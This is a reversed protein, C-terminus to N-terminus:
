ELYQLLIGAFHAGEGLIQEDVDSPEEAVPGDELRQFPVDKGRHQPLPLWALCDPNPNRSARRTLLNVGDRDAEELVHLVASRVKRKVDEARIDTLPADLLRPGANETGM